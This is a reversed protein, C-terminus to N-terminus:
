GRGQWLFEAATGVLSHRDAPQLDCRKSNRELKHWRGKWDDVPETAQHDVKLAEPEPYRRVALVLGALESVMLGNVDVKRKEMTLKRMDEGAEHLENGVESIKDSLILIAQLVERQIEGAVGSM